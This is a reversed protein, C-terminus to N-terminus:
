RLKLLKKCTNDYFAFWSFPEDLVDGSTEVDCHSYLANLSERKQSSDLNAAKLILTQYADIDAHLICCLYRTNTPSLETSYKKHSVHKVAHGKNLFDEGTGGVAIDLKTMDEWLYETRVVAITREPHNDMALVDWYRKYGWMFHVGMKKMSRGKLGALGGARCALKAKDTGNYNVVFDVMADLGDPFCRKYFQKQFHTSSFAIRHYNFASTIRKIPDRVSFVFLDAQNHMWTKEEPTYIEGTMHVRGMTLSGVKTEGPLPQYCSNYSKEKESMRCVLAEKKRILNHKLQEITKAMNLERYITAGGAKGVHVFFISPDPPLSMQGDGREGISRKTKATVTARASIGDLLITPLDAAYGAILNQSQASDFQNLLTLIDFCSYGLLLAGFAM